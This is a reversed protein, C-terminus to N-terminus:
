LKFLKKLSIWLNKKLEQNEPIDRYMENAKLVPLIAINEWHTIVMDPFQQEM